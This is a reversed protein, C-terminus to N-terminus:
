GDNDKKPKPPKKKKGREVLRDAEKKDTSGFRELAEEFDMDLHLPAEYSKPRKTM